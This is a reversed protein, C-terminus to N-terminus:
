AWTPERFLAFFAEIGDVLYYFDGFAKKLFIAVQGEGPALDLIILGTM